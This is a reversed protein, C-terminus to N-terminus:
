KGSIKEGAMLNGTENAKKLNFTEMYEIVFAAAFTDGAGTLDLIEEDKLLMAKTQIQENGAFVRAGKEGQTIVTIESNTKIAELFSLNGGIDEESFIAAKVSNLFDLNEIRKKLVKGDRGVRRLYGQLTVFLPGSKALVPFVDAEVEGIVSAVLILADKLIEKPIYDLDQLTIQEQKETIYQTRKGLSDYFNKFSTITQFSSPLLYVKIGMAKLEKLYLHNKPAKTIVVVQYGLKLATLATYYVSGGLHEEPVLDNTIHGIAVFKM